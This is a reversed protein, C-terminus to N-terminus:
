PQRRYQGDLTATYGRTARPVLTAVADLVSQESGFRVGLSLRKGNDLCVMLTSDAVIGPTARAWRADMM